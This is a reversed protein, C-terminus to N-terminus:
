QDNKFIDNIQQTLFDLKAQLTAKQTEIFSIEKIISTIAKTLTKSYPVKEFVLKSPRMEMQRNGLRAMSEEFYANHFPISHKKQGKPCANWFEEDARALKRSRSYCNNCISDSICEFSNDQIAIIELVFDNDDALECCQCSIIIKEEAPLWNKNNTM